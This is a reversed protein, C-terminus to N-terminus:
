GDVCRPGCTRHVRGLGPGNLGRGHGPTRGGCGGNKATVAAWKAARAPRRAGPRPRHRPAHGARARWDARPAGRATGRGAELGIM